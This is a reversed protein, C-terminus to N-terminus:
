FPIDLGPEVQLLLKRFQNKIRELAEPTDAEFRMVVAPQTNSARALGWGDPFEVRIGDLDIIKADPFHAARKLDDVLTFNRGEPTDLRLEPTSYGKPLSTLVEKPSRSDKSLVELLRAGTYMGDDFGYWREKFFIHGSMEGALPAQTEQMKSKIVSHGTKWMMAQGGAATIAEPLYRTCKVDFIIPAGPNRSLVDQALLILQRDPWIIEGGPAVVGLRDGDGDFALGVDLGKEDVLRILDQLNKEVTPDPHHNPFTGDVETFLEHVECGLERFLQPAIAGTVGNGCDIGIRLPRALKIDGVIRQIYDWHIDLNEVHGHGTVYDGAEMRRRLGQIQEGHLTGGGLMIKFGNYDPPNHSGTVMVGGDANLHFVAYYLTPTPVREVDIVLCGTSTLGKSLQDLFRTGSLRGDRGVVIRQLGRSRAESGIARGIDYVVADTLDRDVIGRIDYERFIGAPISPNVQGAPIPM